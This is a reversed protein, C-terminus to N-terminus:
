LWVRKYQNIIDQWSSPTEDSWEWRVDSISFAKLGSSGGSELKGFIYQVMEQALGELDAPLDAPAEDTAEWPLIYGATYRVTINRSGTVADGTLGHPFGYYTWGDDKYIVGANGRVTIDYLGTLSNLFTTKGTGNDGLLAIREGGHAELSVHDFLTRGGFSKSVDEVTFLEDGNFEWSSFQMKLAREKAVPRETSRLREIRKEMAFATKHMKETGRQHMVTAVATLQAIKAQEKEYQKLQERYRKEKEVAYFSYNGAYFEAKGRNIEIVRTVVQDLFYRDHSITLVTGPFGKLYGELWEVAHLDLHNTPEDLLLIDTDELILRGLNVRTQEGGSLSAFPQQRMTDPIGLGNCVKNVQVATDYGGALEFDTNLKDYRELVTRSADGGAMQEELEKM